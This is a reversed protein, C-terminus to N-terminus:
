LLGRVKQYGKKLEKGLLELADGVDEAAEGAAKGVVEARARFHEWKKELGDFEDRADAAALHMQVKLEDRLQKVEEALEAFSGKKDAMKEDEKTPRAPGRSM